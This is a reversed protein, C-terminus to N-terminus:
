SLEKWTAGYEEVLVNDYYDARDFLHQMLIAASEVNLYRDFIILSLIIENGRVSLSLNELEYNEQLLYRYIPRINATPLEALVADGVILGSEEHYSLTINASGEVIQWRHPGIRSLDVNHGLERLTDELTKNVGIAEYDPVQSPLIAKAGCITCYSSEVMAESLVNSCSACRVAFGGGVAQYATLAKQITSAPLSFGINNGDRVIFTNIGAIAGSHTLLPGGSNGPNLAADHQLYRVGNMRHKANSIIGNTTSFKLGYPHGIALIAEGEDLEENALAPAPNIELSPQPAELFALDWKSDLYLVSVLQKEFHLGNIVVVRNDRVVHENTVILDHSALYFGTGRNYPTAIQVIVDKSADIVQSISM